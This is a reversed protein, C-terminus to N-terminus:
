RAVPLSDTWLRMSWRSRRWSDSSGCVRGGRARARGRVDRREHREGTRLVAVFV